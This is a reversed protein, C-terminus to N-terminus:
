DSRREQQSALLREVQQQDQQKVKLVQLELQVEQLEELKIKQLMELREELLKVQELNLLKRLHQSNNLKLHERQLRKKKKRNHYFSNKLM